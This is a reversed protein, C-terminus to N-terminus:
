NYVYQLVKSAGDYSFPMNDKGPYVAVAMPQNEVGLFVVRAVKVGVDYAVLGNVSLRGEASEMEVCTWKEQVISVGDDVYLSGATTGNADPAVVFEFDKTRLETTTM